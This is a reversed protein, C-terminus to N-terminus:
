AIMEIPIFDPRNMLELCKPCTVKNTEITYNLHWSGNFCLPDKGGRFYHVVDNNNPRGRKPM